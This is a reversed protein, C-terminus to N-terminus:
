ILFLRSKHFIFHTQAWSCVDAYPSNPLYKSKNSAKFTNRLELYPTHLHIHFIELMFDERSVDPETRTQRIRWESSSRARTKVRRWLTRWFIYNRTKNLRSLTKHKKAPTQLGEACKICDTEKLVFRRFYSHRRDSLNFKASLNKKLTVDSIFRECFSWVPAFHNELKINKTTKWFMRSICKSSFCCKIKQSFSTLKHKFCPSIIQWLTPFIFKM